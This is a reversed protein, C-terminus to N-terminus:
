SSSLVARSKRRALRRTLKTMRVPATMALEWPMPRERRQAIFAEVLDRRHLGRKVELLLEGFAHERSLARRNPRNSTIADYVDVIAIIQALLPIADGSLGDPYGSGDLREHHHRVIPRVNWLVRLDGCLREGIVPHQIMIRREAATLKGQKLLVRDPIGIKGIDHFYGGRELTLLDEEPLQLRQGLAVAYNALRECHGETHADRAEITLALSRLVAEASDLDDTFRKLEVLSRVRVRLESTDIPKSLFDSAGADIARIKDDTEASGTVLIVPTLRTAPRSRLERCVEFGDKKPMRVDTLVIDPRDRMAIEIAEEGDRATLVEYGNAALLQRLGHLSAPVDDAILVRGSPKVANARPSGPM